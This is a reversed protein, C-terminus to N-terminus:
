GAKVDAAAIKVVILFAYIGDLRQAAKMFSVKVLQLLPGLLSLMQISTEFASILYLYNCSKLIHISFSILRCFLMMM